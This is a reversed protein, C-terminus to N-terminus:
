EDRDPLSPGQWPEAFAHVVARMEANLRMLEDRFLELQYLTFRLKETELERAERLAARFTRVIEDDAPNM